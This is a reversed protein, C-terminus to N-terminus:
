AAGPLSAGLRAAQAKSERRWIVHNWYVLLAVYALQSVLQLNDSNEFNRQAVASSLATSALLYPVYSLVIGKYFPKLPLRYWLILGALGSFLWVAGNLIRPQVDRVFTQYGHVDVLLIAVLTALLVVFVLRRAAALAGPFSRFIRLGIELAMAFRLLNYIVEKVQYFNPSYWDPRLPYVWGLAVVALLYLSFFWWDSLRRRVLLGLLAGAVLLIGVGGIVRPALIM